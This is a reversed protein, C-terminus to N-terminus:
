LGLGPPLGLGGTVKGMEQSQLQRGKELAQKIGSLILDEVMESDDPDLIEPAIKLGLIEGAGSATVAVKGGGVSAEVTKKALEAQVSHMQEQMKQAQEMMKEINM